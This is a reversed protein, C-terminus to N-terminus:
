VAPTGRSFVGNWTSGKRPPGAVEPLARLLDVIVPLNAAPILAALQVGVNGCGRNGCGCLPIRALGQLGESEVVVALGDSEEPEGSWLEVWVSEPEDGAQVLLHVNRRLGLFASARGTGGRSSRLWTTRASWQDVTIRKRESDFVAEAM